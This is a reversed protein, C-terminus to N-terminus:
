SNIPAVRLADDVLAVLGRRERASASKEDNERESGKEETRLSIDDIKDGRINVIPVKPSM